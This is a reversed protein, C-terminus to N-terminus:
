AGDFENRTEIFRLIDEKRILGELHGDTVVPVQSVHDKEMVELVNSLEAGPEVSRLTEFPKMAQGATLSPWHDRPVAKLERPTLLGLLRGNEAVIFCRNGTRILHEDFFDALSMRSAVTKASTSMVDRAHVGTIAAEFSDSQQSSRAANLLFWGVFALMLGSILDGGLVARLIGLVIMVYALGRGIGAATRTARHVDGTVAWVAARLVRGGDMPYGPLMNFIALGLNIYWLYYLMAGVPSGREFLFSLALFGAGIVFSSVPGGVGVWFETAASMAEKEIQSVGGFIFLTIS